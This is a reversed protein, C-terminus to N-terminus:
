LGAPAKRIVDSTEYPEHKKWDKLEFHAYDKWDWSGGWTYDIGEVRSVDRMTANIYHWYDPHCQWHYTPHVIDVACGRQHAGNRLLKSVGKDYLQKQARNNRYATHVYFPLGKKKCRAYTQRVLRRLDPHVGAWNARNHQRLMNQAYFEAESFKYQKVNEAYQALEPIPEYADAQKGIRNKIAEALAKAYFCLKM